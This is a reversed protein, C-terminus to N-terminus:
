NIMCRENHQYNGNGYMHMHENLNWVLMIWTKTSWFIGASNLCLVLSGSQFKVWKMIKLVLITTYNKDEM